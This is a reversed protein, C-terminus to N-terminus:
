GLGASSAASEPSPCPTQLSQFVKQWAAWITEPRALNEVLHKRASRAFFQRLDEEYALRAAYYALEEENDALFGTFGHRVMERWGWKNPVVLPVGTAMAELGSRPWNEQAGGNAQLMVHLKGIFDQATEARSPLVEAWPPPLGIKKEVEPGWAMIRARVPHPIREYIWWTKPHFKDPAPRSIRGVVLPEGKKHPRPRFPWEETMFAARVLHMQEPRVGYQVLQLRLMDLQHQSQFIYADFPGRREYHRREADFLWCMCGAWIIRCGLDRFRDVHALFQSNCFSVVISGKLGPVDALKDPTTTITPYGLLNVRSLWLNCPNGWTPICVVQLNFRRWLLLTHWCETGAGGVDGPYGILFIKGSLNLQTSQQPAGVRLLQLKAQELHPASRAIEDSRRSKQKSWLRYRVLPEPLNRVVFGAQLARLWLDLDAGWELSGNYGGLALIRSRRFLVTPHNLFWIMGRAAIRQQIDTIHVLEPHHTQWCTKGTQDDFAEIQGGLIDVEPHALMYQMQRELREPLMLDDADMRAVLETQAVQLGANLAGPLGQHDRRLLRVRSSRAMEELLALTEPETSGDDVVVLQWYPYTQKQISDWCAQLMRAPTNWVPLLITVLPGGTAVSASPQLKIAPPEEKLVPESPSEPTLGDPPDCTVVLTSGLHRLSRVPFWQAVYRRFEEANWERAHCTNLPPGLDNPGHVRDRDPTSLVLKKWRITAIYDLLQDPNQLHEIVDVAMVVDVEQIPCPKSLDSLLWKRDPYTQLLHEYTPSLETGITDFQGLITVLKYGSGTGIDLVTRYSGDLMLKRVYEYVPKQFQDQYSRDDWFDPQNRATYDSRIGYNPFRNVKGDSFPSNYESSSESSSEATSESLNKLEELSPKIGWKKLPCAETAM